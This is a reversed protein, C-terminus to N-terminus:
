EALQVGCFFGQCFSVENRKHVLVTQMAKSDSDSRLQGLYSETPTKQVIDPNQGRIFHGMEKVVPPLEQMDFEKVIRRTPQARMM